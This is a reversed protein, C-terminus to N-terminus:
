LKFDNYVDDSMDKGDFFLRVKYGHLKGIINSPFTRVLENQLNTYKNYYVKAALLKEDAAKIEMIAKKYEKDEELSQHDNKIEIVINFIEALKRDLDFNGIKKDKLSELVKLYDKSNKVNKKYIINIQCLLDYKKRLMEDIISEAQEIKSNATQLKNFFIVYGILLSGVIIIFFLIGYFFGM